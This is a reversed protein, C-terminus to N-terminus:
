QELLTEVLLQAGDGLGTFIPLTHCLVVDDNVTLAM